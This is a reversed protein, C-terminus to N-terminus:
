RAVIEGMLRLKTRREIRLVTVPVKEGPKILERVQGLDELNDVSHRGSAVLVDRRTLGLTAAPSGEEVRAVILGRSGSMGLMQAVEDTLPAVEVGLRAIALQTGDPLPRGALTITANREQSNRDVKLNIV